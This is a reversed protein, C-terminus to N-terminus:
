GRANKTKEEYAREEAKNSRRMSIIRLTGTRWTYIISYLKGGLQGVAVFRQESDSKRTREFAVSTEWDFGAVSEFAIGHKARNAANKAEDWEFNM